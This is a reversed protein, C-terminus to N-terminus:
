KIVWENVPFGVDRLDRPSLNYLQLLSAAEKARERRHTVLMKRDKLLSKFFQTVNGSYHTKVIEDVELAQTTKLRFKYTKSPERRNETVKTDRNENM